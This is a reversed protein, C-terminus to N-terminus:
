RQKFGLSGLIWIKISVFYSVYKEFQSDEHKSIVFLIKNFIRWVNMM